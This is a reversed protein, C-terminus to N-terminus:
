SLKRLGNDYYAYGEPVYVVSYACESTEVDEYARRAAKAAEEAEQETAYKGSLACPVSPSLGSPTIVWHGM